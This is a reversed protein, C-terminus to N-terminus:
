SEHRGRLKRYASSESPCKSDCFVKYVFMVTKTTQDKPTPHCCPPIEDEDDVVVPDVVWLNILSYANSLSHDASRGHICQATVTIPAGCSTVSAKALCQVGHTVGSTFEYYMTQVDSLFPNYIKFTVNSGQQHLITIPSTVGMPLTKTRNNLLVVDEPCVNSGPTGDVCRELPNQPAPTPSLRINGVVPASTPDVPALTPAAPAPTPAM